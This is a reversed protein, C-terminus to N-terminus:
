RVGFNQNLVVIQPHQDRIRPNAYRFPLVAVFSDRIRVDFDRSRSDVELTAADLDLIRALSALTLM